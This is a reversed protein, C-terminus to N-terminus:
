RAGNKQSSLRRLYRAFNAPDNTILAKIGLVTARTLWHLDDVTWTVVPLDFQKAKAVIRPSLLSHHLAMEDARNAVALDIMKQPRITSIPRAPQPQFLAATRITADYDKIRAIAKLDFSAVVVRAGIRATQIEQVVKQPLNAAGESESKMEVYLLAHNQKCLEFVEALTPVTGTFSAGAERKFWRCVDCQQLEAVTLERVLRNVLGTRKLSADHVVVPVNDRSLRVDFEIGDAGDSLARSFSALTNEPAVAAAGRHGIILPAPSM